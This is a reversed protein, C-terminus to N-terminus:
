ENRKFLDTFGTLAGFRKPKPEPEEEAAAVEPEPEPEPEPTTVDVSSATGVPEGQTDELEPDETEALRSQTTDPESDSFMSPGSMPRGIRTKSEYTATHALNKRRYIRGSKPLTDMELRSRLNKQQRAEILLQAVDPYSAGMESVTRILAIADNPIKKRETEALTIKSVTLYDDGARGQVMIDKGARAILPFEFKHETGFVVIEQEKRRRFHIMPDGEVDLVNLRFASPLIEGRVFPDGPDLARMAVFAGYRTEASPESLLERLKVFARADNIVSLAALAFVRFAPEDRAAKVLVDIGSADELYALAVASHFQVEESPHKLGSKLTEIGRKGIAELKLAASECTRPEHLESKLREIRLQEAIDSEQLAINRIVQIYRDPNDKYRNHIKLEIVENTKAEALPVRQGGVQYDYFRQGVRNAVRSSMRVGRYENRLLLTMDRDKLSVAGRLIKGRLLTGRQQAADADNSMTGVLIPGAAKALVHGELMGAGPINAAESLYTELLFGGNLSKVNADDPVYVEIDFREGKKINPPLYAKVAVLATSDSRLIENPNPVKRRRMDDLLQTRQPSVPPDAGTGPLGTVLGVGVLYVANRNGISVYRGLLPTEVRTESKEELTPIKPSPTDPTQSRFDMLDFQGCGLTSIMLISLLGFMSKLMARKGRRFDARLPEDAI